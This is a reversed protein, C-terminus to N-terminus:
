HPGAAQEYARLAAWPDDHQGIVEGKAGRVVWASQDEEWEVAVDFGSYFVPQVDQLPIIQWRNEFNVLVNGRFDWSRVGDPLEWEDPGFLPLNSWDKAALGTFSQFDEAEGDSEFAAMAENLIECLDDLSQAGMIGKKWDKINMM